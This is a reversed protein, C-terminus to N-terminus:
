RVEPWHSCAHWSHVPPFARPDPGGAFTELYQQILQYDKERDTFSLIPTVLEIGYSDFLDKNAWEIHEFKQVLNPKNFGVLSSDTTLIWRSYDTKRTVLFDGSEGHPIPRDADPKVTVESPELGEIRGRVTADLSNNRLLQKALLLPEIWLRRVLHQGSYYRERVVRDTDSIQSKEVKLIWSPYVKRGQTKPHHGLLALDDRDEENDRYLVGKINYQQLVERIERESFAITTEFEIGFTTM